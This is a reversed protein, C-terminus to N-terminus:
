RRQVLVEPWGPKLNVWTRVVEPASPHKLVDLVVSPIFIKEFLQPLLEILNIQLPYLLPSTDAVPLTAPPRSM